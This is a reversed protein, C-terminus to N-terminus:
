RVREILITARGWRRAQACDGPIALDFQMHSAGRDNIRLEVNHWSSRYPSGPHQVDLRWVSGMPISKMAAATLRLVPREGNATRGTLCYATASVRRVDRAPEASARVLFGLLFGLTILMHAAVLQQQRRM